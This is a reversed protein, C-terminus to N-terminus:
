PPVPSPRVMLAWSTRAIPPLILTFLVGPSAANEVEGGAEFRPLGYGGGVLLGRAFAQRNEDGHIVGAFAGQEFVQEALPAHVGDADAVGGGRQAFM